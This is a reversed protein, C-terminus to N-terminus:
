RRLTPELATFWWAWSGKEETMGSFTEGTQLTVHHSLHSGTHKDHGMIPLCWSSLPLSPRTLYIEQTMNFDKILFSANRFARSM